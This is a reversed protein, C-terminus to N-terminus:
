QAAVRPANVPPAVALRVSHAAGVQLSLPKAADYDLLTLRYGEEALNAALTQFSQVLESSRRVLLTQGATERAIQEIARTDHDSQKLAVFHLTVGHRRAAAIVSDQSPGPLSNAGDSFIVVIKEGAVQALSAIADDAAVFLSTGGDAVLRQSGVIAASPGQSWDALLRVRDSFATLRVYTGPPLNKLLSAVGAQAERLPEGQTSISTDIAVAVNMRIAQRRPCAALRLTSGNQSAVFDKDILGVYPQGDAHRLDVDVLLVGRAGGSQSRVIRGTIGLPLDAPRLSAIRAEVRVLVAKIQDLPMHEKTATALLSLLITRVGDLDGAVGQDIGRSLLALAQALVARRETVTAALERKLDRTVAAEQDAKSRFADLGEEAQRKEDAARKLRTEVDNLQRQANGAKIRSELRQKALLPLDQPRDHRIAVTLAENIFQEAAEGEVADAARCLLRITWDALTQTWEPTHTTELENLGVAAAAGYLGREEFGRIDQEVYPRSRDCIARAFYPVEGFLWYTFSMAAVWAAATAVGLFVERLPNASSRVRPTTVTRTLAMGILGIGAFVLAPITGLRLPYPEAWGLLVAVVISAAAAVTMRFLLLM